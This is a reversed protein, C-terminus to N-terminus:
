KGMSNIKIVASENYMVLREDWFWDVGKILVPPYTYKKGGKNCTLGTRLQRMYENSLPRNLLLMLQQKTYM